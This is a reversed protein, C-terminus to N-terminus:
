AGASNKFAAHLLLKFAQTFISIRSLHMFISTICGYFALRQEDWGPERREALVLSFFLAELM